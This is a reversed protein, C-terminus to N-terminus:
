VYNKGTCYSTVIATVILINKNVELATFSMRYREMSLKKQSVSFKLLSLSRCYCEKQNQYHSPHIYPFDKAGVHYCVKVVSFGQNIIGIRNLVLRKTRGYEM